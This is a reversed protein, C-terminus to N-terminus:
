QGYLYDYIVYGVYIREIYLRTEWFDVTELFLDYDGGATEYWRAANGPGANYAALAAHVHGDFTRLQQHLYYAGFTLGVHPKFLDENEYDPWSLQRAIFAGTDPIVQSLGQAAAGSRAFSEFLSEQRVLSFHLRPDYSHLEALSLILDAYYIPYALRGIFHPAEFVTQGSLSLLSGAALISSRYLGLERFYLALQYSALADEAYDQRLAELERRAEAFLGIQWLKEGVVLRSDTALAEPMTRVDHGAELGLWSRLWAEAEEQGENEAAPLAFPTASSFPAVDSLVDRARLAYYHTARSGAVMEQIASRLDAANQEGTPDPTNEAVATAEGESSNSADEAGVTATTTITATVAPYAEESEEGTAEVAAFAQPGLRLLWVIAAFGYEATPHNLVARRWAAVATKTDGMEHALWGARFLAEPADEHWSYATALNQYRTVATQLDGSREALTAVQWAAFPAEAGDPYSELYSLYAAVAEAPNGARAQLKGQEVLAEAPNTTAYQELAALAMGLNGLEEYSWALYLHADARYDELNDEIYRNFADIAPEYAGAYYDILGRQFEDVTAGADVLEVLGLYTEYARPYNTVGELYYAHGAEVNGALIEATGALYTMEGKTNETVAIQRIAEYQAIAAEYNEDELYLAALQQRIDVQTLRHAPTALAAEYAAVAAARDDLALHAAAIRPQVYPAMDPNAQLYTRYADIAAQQEGLGTYTQGLYFHTATPIDGPLTLLENLSALAEPYRGDDVYAVGLAFLAEAVQAEQLADRRDLATELQISAREFNGNELAAQGIQVRDAPQPTVTPTPSPGPTATATPPPSNSLANAAMNSGPTSQNSTAANQSDATALASVLTPTPVFTVTADLAVPGAAEESGISDECGAALFLSVFLLLCFKCVRDSM